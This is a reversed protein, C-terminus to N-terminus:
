NKTAPTGMPWEYLLVPIQDEPWFFFFGHARIM